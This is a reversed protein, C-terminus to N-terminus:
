AISGVLLTVAHHLNKMSDDEPFSYFQFRSYHFLDKVWM